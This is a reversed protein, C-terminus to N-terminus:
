SVVTSLTLSVSYLAGSIMLASLKYITTAVLMPNIERVKFIGIDTADRIYFNNVYVHPWIYVLLKSPFDLSKKVFLDPLLQNSNTLVNAAM